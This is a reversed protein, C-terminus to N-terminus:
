VVLKLLDGKWPHDDIEEVSRILARMEDLVAADSDARLDGQIMRMLAPRHDPSEILHTFGPLLRYFLRIFDDWIAAGALLQDEYPLFTARGYEGSAHAADIREAAFRASHMAVSVGSSFVPDIFRAADGVALWGDGCVQDLRYSYNVEGKIENLRSAERTAEALKPNLTMGHDFFDGVSLGSDHYAGKTAVLGISTIEENIPAQWAWGRTSCPTTV